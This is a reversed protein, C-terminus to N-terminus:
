TANLADNAGDKGCEILTTLARLAAGPERPDLALVPCNTAQSLANLNLTSPADARATLVVIVRDAPIHYRAELRRALDVALDAPKKDLPSVVVLATDFKKMGEPHGRMLDVWQWRCHDEDLGRRSEQEQQWFAAGGVDHYQCLISGADNLCHTVEVGPTSRHAAPVEAGCLARVVSTKGSRANGVVLVRVCKPGKPTDTSELLGLVRGM